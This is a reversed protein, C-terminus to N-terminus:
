GNATFPMVGSLGDYLLGPEPEDFIFHLGNFRLWYSDTFVTLAM